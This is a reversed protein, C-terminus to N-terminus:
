MGQTTQYRREMVTYLLNLKEKNIGPNAGGAVTTVDKLSSTRLEEENFLHFLIIKLGDFSSSTNEVMKLLTGLTGGENRESEDSM